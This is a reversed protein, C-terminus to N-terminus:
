RCAFNSSERVSDYKDMNYLTSASIQIRIVEKGTSALTLKKSVWSHTHVALWVRRWGYFSHPKVAKVLAEPIFSYASVRFTLTRDWFPDDNQFM